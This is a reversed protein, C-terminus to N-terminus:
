PCSKQPATFIKDKVKGSIVLFKIDTASTLDADRQFRKHFDDIAARRANKSLKKYDIIANELETRKGKKAFQLTQQYGKVMSSIYARVEVLNYSVETNKSKVFDGDDLANYAKKNNEVKKMANPVVVDRLFSQLKSAEFKRAQANKERTM